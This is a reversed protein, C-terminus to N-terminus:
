YFGKLWGFQYLTAVGIFQGWHTNNPGINLHIDTRLFTNLVTSARANATNLDKYKYVKM